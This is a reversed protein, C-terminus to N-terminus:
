LGTMDWVAWDFDNSDDLPNIIFSLNGAGQAFFSYWNTFREGTILCDPCNTDYDIDVGNNANYNFLDYYSGSGSSELSNVTNSYACLPRAGLCDARTPTPLYKYAVTGLYQGDTQCYYEYFGVRYTTTTPCTWIIESGHGCHDDNYGNAVPTGSGNMIQIQPDDTYSSGGQCFSFIYVRGAVGAFNYYEGGNIGTMTNWSASPATLTATYTGGSCSYVNSSFLIGIFFSLWFLIYFGTLKKM